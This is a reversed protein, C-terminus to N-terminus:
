AGIPWGFINMEILLFILFISSAFFLSDFRDLVGGHGPFIQSYDKIGYTRKLKSALLDGIQSCISLFGSLALASFIKGVTTFENYRFVGNFFEISNGNHFIYSFQPYLFIILTGAITAITTGGIAGEWTKKPSTVPAMKHKGFAMGFVLAFIDTLVTIGALYVIFRVGFYRLVTVAGTCVGIYMISIFFKGVDSVTYSPNIVMISMMIVFITIVAVAPSLFMDMKLARLLSLMLSDYCYIHFYNIISMMLIITLFANTIKMAIHIKKEHSYMNVLEFSAVIAVLYIVLDFIRILAPVIVVPLLIFALVLGTIIRRKM